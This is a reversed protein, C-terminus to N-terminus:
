PNLPAQALVGTGLAAIGRYFATDAREEMWMLCQPGFQLLHDALFAQEAALCRDLQLDDGAELADLARTCLHALFSFELAIHDDPETNLRPAELGFERYAERVEFTQEEFLLHEQSRYVSEYPVARPHGPGVFLLQYDMALDDLDAPDASAEKLLALGRATADDRQMPWTDLVDPDLLQRVLPRDAAAGLVRSLLLYAAAFRDLRDAVATREADEM